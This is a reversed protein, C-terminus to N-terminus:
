NTGTTIRIFISVALILFGIITGFLPPILIDAGTKIWAYAIVNIALFMAGLIPIAHNMITDVVENM